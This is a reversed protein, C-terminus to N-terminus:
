INSYVGDIINIHMMPYMDDIRDKSTIEKAILRSVLNSERNIDLGTLRLLKDIDIVNNKMKYEMRAHVPIEKILNIFSKNINQDSCMCYISYGQKTFNQLDMNLDYEDIKERTEMSRKYLIESPLHTYMQITPPVKYSKKYLESITKNSFGNFGFINTFTNNFYVSIDILKNLLESEGSDYEDKCETRFYSVKNQIEFVEHDFADNYRSKYIQLPAYLNYMRGSLFFRDFIVYFTQDLCKDFLMSERLEMLTEKFKSKDTIESGYLKLRQIIDTFDINNDYKRRLSDNTIAPDFFEELIKLFDLKNKANSVINDKIATQVEDLNEENFRYDKNYLTKNLNDIALKPNRKPNTEFDNVSTDLNKFIPFHFMIANNQIKFFENAVTTKGSCDPGEFIKMILKM